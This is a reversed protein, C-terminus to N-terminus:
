ASERAMATDELDMVRRANMAALVVSSTQSYTPRELLPLRTAMELAATILDRTSSTYCHM